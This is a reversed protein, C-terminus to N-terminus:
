RAVVMHRRGQTQLVSAQLQEILAEGCGDAERLERLARENASESQEVAAVGVAEVAETSEAFFTKMAEALSPAGDMPVEAIAAACCAGFYAVIGVRTANVTERNGSAVAAMLVTRCTEVAEDGPHNQRQAAIRDFRGRPEPRCRFAAVIGLYIANLRRVQFVDDTRSLFRPNNQKTRM